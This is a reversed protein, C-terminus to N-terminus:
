LKTYEVWIEYANNTTGTRALYSISNFTVVNNQVIINSRFSDVSDVSICNPMATVDNGFKWWGGANVLIDVGSSLNTTIKTNAAGTINGTFVRRYIPKGDIWVEGTPKEATSYAYGIEFADSDKRFDKNTINTFVVDSNGITTLSARSTGVGIPLNSINARLIDARTCNIWIGYVDANSLLSEGDVDSSWFIFQGSRLVRLISGGTVNITPIIETSPKLTVGYIYVKEVEDFVIAGRLVSGPTTASANYPKGFIRFEDVGSITWVSSGSLTYEQDGLLNLTVKSQRTMKQTLYDRAHDITQWPNAQTGDGTTDNGSSADLYIDLELNATNNNVWTPNGGNLGLVKGDNNTLDPLLNKLADSANTADTGGKSIPLSTGSSVGNVSKTNNIIGWVSFGTITILIAIVLWARNNLLYNLLNNSKQPLSKSERGVGFDWKPTPNRQREVRKREREGNTALKM